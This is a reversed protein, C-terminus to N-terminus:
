SPASAGPWPSGDERRLRGPSQGGADARDPLLLGAARRRHAGLEDRRRRLLRLLSLGVRARALRRRLGQRSQDLHPPLPAPVALPLARDRRLPVRGQRGRQRARRPHQRGAHQAPARGRAAHPRRRPRRRRRLRRLRSRHGGGPVRAARPQAHARVRLRGPDHLEPRLRLLGVVRSRLGLPVGRDRRARRDPRPRHGRLRGRARHRPPRSLRPHGDAGPVDPVAGVDARPPREDGAVTAGRRHTRVNYDVM